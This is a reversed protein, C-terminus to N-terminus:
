LTFARNSFEDECSGWPSFDAQKWLFSFFSKEAMPFSFELVEQRAQMVFFHWGYFCIAVFLIPSPSSFNSYYFKNKKLNHSGIIPLYIFVKKSYTSRNCDFIFICLQFSHSPHLTLNSDIFLLICTSASADLISKQNISV